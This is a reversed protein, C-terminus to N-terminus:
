KFVIDRIKKSFSLLDFKTAVTRRAEQSMADYDSISSYARDIISKFLRYNHEYNNDLRRILEDYPKPEDFSAIYVGPFDLLYGNVGDKILHDIGGVKTSIVPTGSSMSELFTYPLGDMATTYILFDTRNLIDVREETDIKRNHLSIRDYLEKPIANACINFYYNSSFPGYVDLGIKSSPNETLYRALYTILQSVGKIPVIRGFYAIRYNFQTKKIINEQKSDAVRVCPTILLTKDAISKETNSEIKRTIVEAVTIHRYFNDFQTSINKTFEHIDTHTIPIIKVSPNAQILRMICETLEIKETPYSNLFVFDYAHSFNNVLRVKPNVSKIQELRLNEVAQSSYLSINCHKLSEIIDITYQEVGGVGLSHNVILVDRDHINKIQANYFSAVSEKSFFRSRSLLYSSIEARFDPNICKSLLDYIDNETDNSLYAAANEFKHYLPYDEGLQEVRADTKPTIIPIGYSMAEFIKNSASYLQSQQHWTNFLVDIGSLVEDQQDKTYNSIIVWEKRPIEILINLSYIVLVINLEPHAIRLKEIVNILTLPSTHETITGSVGVVFKSNNLKRITSRNKYLSRLDNSMLNRICAQQRVFTKRPVCNIESYMLTGDDGVNKLLDKQAFLRSTENQFGIFYNQWIEQKFNHSYIKPEIMEDMFFRAQAENGSSRYFSAFYARSPKLIKKLYSSYKPRGNEVRETYRVLFAEENFLGSENYLDNVFIDNYFVDYISSLVYMENIVNVSAGSWKASVYWKDTYLFYVEKKNESHEKYPLEMFGADSHYCGEFPNGAFGDELVFPYSKSYISEPSIIKTIECSFVTLDNSHIRNTYEYEVDSLYEKSNIVSLKTSYLANTFKFTTIQDNLYNETYDHQDSMLTFYDDETYKIKGSIFYNLDILIKNFFAQREYAANIKPSLARYLVFVRPYKKNLRSEPIGAKIFINSGQDFVTKDAYMQRVISARHYNEEVSIGEVNSFCPALNEKSDVIKINPFRTKVSKAFNSIILEGQAQLEYIRMACMTSSDKISNLNLNYRFLKHVNQLERHEFKDVIHELYQRPYQLVQDTRDSNRNAIVLGIGSDVLSDFIVCMDRCRDKYRQPYSGAFFAANFRTRSSGIPNNFVPNFGYEGWYVNEHGCDKKYQDVIDADTTFIYQFKKAIEIFKPYNSPDEITQFITPINKKICLAIIKDIVTHLGQDYNVGKWEDSVMGFWCSIFLFADIGNELIQEYNTPTIPVLEDVASSYYNYMFEDTIVGVRLSFKNFYRIGQDKHPITIASQHLSDWLIKGKLNRPIPIFGNDSAGYNSVSYSQAKSIRDRCIKINVEFNRKGLLEAVQNYLDLAEAYKGQYFAKAATKVLSKDM